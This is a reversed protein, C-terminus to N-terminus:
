GHLTRTTELAMRKEMFSGQLRYLWGTTWATEMYDIFCGTM